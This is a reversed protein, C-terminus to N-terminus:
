GVGEVIQQLVIMNLESTGERSLVHRDGPDGSVRDCQPETVDGRSSEDM